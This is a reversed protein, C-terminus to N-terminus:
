RIGGKMSPGREISISLCLHVGNVVLKLPFSSILTSIPIYGKNVGKSRHTHRPVPILPRSLTILFAMITNHCLGISSAQPRRLYSYVCLMTESADFHWTNLVFTSLDRPLHGKNGLQQGVKM